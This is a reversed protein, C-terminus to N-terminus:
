LLGTRRNKLGSETRLTKHRTCRQMYSGNHKIFVIKNLCRVTSTYSWVIKVKVSSTPLHHTAHLLIRSRLVQKIHTALKM